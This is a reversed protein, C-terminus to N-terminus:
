CRVVFLVFGCCVVIVLCCCRVVVVGLSLRCVVDVFLVLEWCCMVLLLSSIVFVNRADCSCWVVFGLLKCCGCCVAYVTM